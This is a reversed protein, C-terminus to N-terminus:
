LLKEWAFKDVKEWKVEYCFDDKKVERVRDILSSRELLRTHWCWPGMVISKPQIENTPVLDILAERPWPRKWSFSNGMLIKTVNSVVNKAQYKGDTEKVFRWSIRYNHYQGSDILPGIKRLQDEPYIEDGDVFFSWVHEKGLSNKLHPYEEPTCSVNRVNCGLGLLKELTSDKSGLDIVEVQPFVKQLASVCPVILNEENKAFVYVGLDM